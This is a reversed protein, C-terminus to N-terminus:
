QEGPGIEERGDEEDEATRAAIARHLLDSPGAHAQGRLLLAGLDAGDDLVPGARQEILIQRHQAVPLPEVVELSADRRMMGTKERRELFDDLLEELALEHIGHPGGLG